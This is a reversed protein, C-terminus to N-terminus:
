TVTLTRYTLPDWLFYEQEIYKTKGVNGRQGPLMSSGTRVDVVIIKLMLTLPFTNLATFISCQIKQEIYIYLIRAKGTIHEM